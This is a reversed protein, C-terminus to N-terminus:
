SSAGAARASVQSSEGLLSMLNEIDFAEKRVRQDYYALTLAISMTPTIITSVIASVVLNFAQAAVTGASKALTPALWEVVTGLGVGIAFTLIWTLFYIAIIRSVADKTLEASRKFAQKAKIDELVVAPVSLGYKGAWYVGPIILLIIGVVIRLGYEITVYIVRGVKGRVRRFCESISTPKELNIDSVGFTTAATSISTAIVNVVMFAIGLSATLLATTIPTASQSKSLILFAVQILLVCVNPLSSIGAFLVFNQRYM